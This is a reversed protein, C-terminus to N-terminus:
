RARWVERKLADYVVLDDGDRGIWLVPTESRDDGLWFPHRGQGDRKEGVGAVFDPLGIWDPLSGDLPTPVSYILDGGHQLILPSVGPGYSGSDYTIRDDDDITLYGAADRGDLAPDHNASPTTTAVWGVDGVGPVSCLRDPSSPACGALLVLALLERRM